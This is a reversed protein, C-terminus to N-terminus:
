RPNSGFDVRVLHVIIAIIVFLVFIIAVVAGIFLPSRWIAPDEVYAALDFKCGVQAPNSGIIQCNLYPQSCIGRCGQTGCTEDVTCYPYVLGSECDTLQTWGQSGIINGLICFGDTSDINCYWNSAAGFATSVIDSKGGSCNAFWNIPIIYLSGAPTTSTPNNNGDTFSPGNLILSINNTSNQLSYQVNSLAVVPSRWSALQGGTRPTQAITIPAPVTGNALLLTNGNANSGGIVLGGGNVQDAFTVTTPNGPLGVANIRFAPLLSSVQINLLSGELYYLINSSTSSVNVANVIFPKGGSSIYGLLCSDGSNLPGIVAM